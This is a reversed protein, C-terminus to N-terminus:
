LDFPREAGGVPDPELTGAAVSFDGQPLPPPRWGRLNARGPPLGATVGAGGGGGTSVTGGIKRSITAKRGTLATHKRSDALLDYITAPPAKFKVRQKITKCM